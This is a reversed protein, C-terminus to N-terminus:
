LQTHIRAYMNVSTRFEVFVTSYFSMSICVLFFAAYIKFGEFFNAKGVNVAAQLCHHTWPHSLEYCTYDIPLGRCLAMM